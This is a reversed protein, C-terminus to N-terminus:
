KLYKRALEDQEPITPDFKGKFLRLFGAKDRTEYLKQIHRMALVRGNLYTLDKNYSLPRINPYQGNLDSPTGRFVRVLATYTVSKVKDIRDDTVEENDKLSMLLRWRWTKEFITRFDHGKEVMDVTMYHGLFAPSWVSPSGNRTLLEDITSGLGEEFTLYDPRETDTFLGSGLVPLDSKFGEVARQAHTYAEHCNKGVLTSFDKIPQRKGGVVMCMESSNWSLATSEPDIKVKIGYRGEPDYLGIVKEFAEKIDEPDASYGYGYEEVKESWFEYLLEISKSDQEIVLDRAWPLSPHDFSPLSAETEARDLPPIYRGKWEFGHQLENFIAQSSSHLKKSGINTWIENLAGDRIEPNVKGYLSEGFVRAQEAKESVIDESANSDVLRSLEALSRVYEMEAARFLLSSSTAEIKQQDEEQEEIAMSAKFLNEVAHSLKILYGGDKLKRYEFRPNVDDGSIFGVKCSGADNVFAEYSQFGAEPTKYPQLIEPIGLGNYDRPQGFENTKKNKDVEPSAIM